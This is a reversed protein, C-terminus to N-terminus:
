FKNIFLYFITAVECGGGFAGGGIVSIYLRAEKGM